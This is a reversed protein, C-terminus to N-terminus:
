SACSLEAFYVQNDLRVCFAHRFGVSVAEVILFVAHAHAVLLFDREFPAALEHDVVTDYAACDVSTEDRCDYFSQHVTHLLARKGARICAVHSYADVVALHVWNVGVFDREAKGSTVREAFREAVGVRFDKLRYVIHFYKHRAVLHAVHHAVQM